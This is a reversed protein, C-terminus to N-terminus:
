GGTVDEGLVVGNPQAGNAWASADMRPKGAPQVTRLLLGGDGTGVVLDSIAGAALTSPVVEADHIKFRDGHFTTWANGVRVVRLLSAADRGWDLQLDETALKRAYIPEGVQEQPDTFGAQITEVMLAAGDISMSEWLSYLTDEDTIPVDLQAWIAGEDLGESVTMICIATSDDGALLAREVPAAGRWRPLPSFHTNVMPIQALVHPRILKGFAVVVALDIPDEAHVRLLDDVDTTVALGLELAAAKVATPSLDKGRGRRKDAGSVVLPIEYGAAELARLTPVAIAPTGLFAIRRIDDPNSAPLPLTM